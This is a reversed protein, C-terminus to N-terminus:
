ALVLSRDHLVRPLVAKRDGRHTVRVARLHHDRAQAAPRHRRLQRPTGPAEAGVRREEPVQVAPELQDARRVGKRRPDPLSARQEVEVQVWPVHQQRGM